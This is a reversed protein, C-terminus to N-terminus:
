GPTPASEITPERAPERTSRPERKAPAAPAAPAEKTAEPGTPARRKTSSRPAGGRHKAITTGLEGQLRELARLAEDRRASLEAVVAEIEARRREGEEVTKTATATATETSRRADADAKDRVKKAYDDAAKRTQQSATSAAERLEAGEERARRKMEESEQETTLLIHATSKGVLELKRTVAMQGIENPADTELWDALRNLFRDVEHRDYGRRAMAFGPVRIRDIEKWDV